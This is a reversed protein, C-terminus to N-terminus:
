FIMYLSLRLYSRCLIRLWKFFLFFYFFFNSICVQIPASIIMLGYTCFDQLRTADVSMLNVIDSTFSSWGNNSLVLAKSYIVTILGAWVCMGTEFTRKFYQVVIWWCSSESSSCCLVLRILAYQRCLLHLLCLSHSQSGKRKVRDTIWMSALNKTCQSTTWCGVSCSHNCFHLCIKSSKSVCLSHTLAAMHLFSLRGSHVIPALHSSM